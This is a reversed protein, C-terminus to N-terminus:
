PGSGSTQRKLVSRDRLGEGCIVPVSALSEVPFGVPTGFTFTVTGAADDGSVRWDSVDGFVPYQSDPGQFAKFSKAIISPTVPSDDSCTVGDKITFVLQDRKRSWESALNPVVTKGDLSAVLGDYAYTALEFATTQVNTAVDLAGPDADLAYRFTADNVLPGEAATVEDGAGKSPDSSDDSSNCGATLGLAVCCATLAAWRSRM